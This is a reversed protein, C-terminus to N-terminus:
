VVVLVLTFTKSPEVGQEWPRKYEMRLVTVGAAIGAATLSVVPIPVVKYVGFVILWVAGGALLGKWLAAWARQLRHRASTAKLANEIVQFDSM